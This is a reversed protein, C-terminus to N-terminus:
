ELTADKVTVVPCPALRITREAVSGLLVHALGTLGRTGMAILDADLQEACEVIAESAVKPTVTTEVAVGQAKVKEVWQELRREAAVRCEREFGEPVAMGYASIRGIDIPYSHLLHLAAEFRQALEVAYDLAKASHSSFDIPVLIKKIQIV